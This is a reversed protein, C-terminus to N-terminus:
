GDTKESLKQARAIIELLRVGEESEPSYYPLLREFYIVAQNYQGENYAYIALLNLAETSDPNLKLTKELLQQSEPTLENHHDMYLAEALALLSEPDSGKIKTSERLAWVAKKVQGDGLALKGLLYWAKADQPQRKLHREFDDILSQRSGTQGISARVEAVRTAVNEAQQVRSYAGWYAYLLLSFLTVFLVVGLVLLRGRPLSVSNRGSFSPALLVLLVLACLGALILGFTM